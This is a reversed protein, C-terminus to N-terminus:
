SLCDTFCFFLSVVETRSGILVSELMMCCDRRANTNRAMKTDVEM